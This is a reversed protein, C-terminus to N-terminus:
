YIFGIRQREKTLKENQCHFQLKELNPDAGGLISDVTAKRAINEIQGGSFDFNRALEEAESESINQLNSLWIAKKAELGPKGFEIKYLFRREFAKDLNDTLNTTAILIGNLNEIEQLIINQIANETQAVNGQTVDKRKGIVADAENFLLIPAIKTHKVCTKYQEFVEKIKKESEGFWCSKTKSIDVMFIDRGTARAIQYVTETKGTGPSGHFLCAFGTRMGKETLRKCVGGFNEEQLLSTLQEIQKREEDNYYMQKVSLSHCFILNKSSQMRKKMISLEGLLEDKAKDTLKFSERDEFGNDNVCEVLNCNFFTFDGETLIRRMSRFHGPSKFLWEFDHFGINDDKNSVFLHCFYLFLITEDDFSSYQNLIKVFNLDANEKMLDEIEGSLAEYTLEEDHKEKFLTALCEFLENATLNKRNEPQPEKNHVLSILVQQPVRYSIQRNSRSCRILRRRELAEIDEIHRFLKVTRCGIFDAIERIFICNDNARDIFHSFLLAQMVNLHLTRKLYNIHIKAKEFFEDNLKSDKSIEIIKEIHGMIHLKKVNNM